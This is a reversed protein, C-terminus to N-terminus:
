GHFRQMLSDWAKFIGVIGSFGAAGAAVWKGVGVIVNHNRIVPAMSVALDDFKKEMGTRWGDREARDDDRDREYREVQAKQREEIRALMVRLEERDM